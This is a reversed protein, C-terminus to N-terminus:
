ARDITPRRPPPADDDADEAAIELHFRHLFHRIAPATAIGVATIFAVGSFIAYLSAFIKAANSPLPDVPGMGSLIMSANLLADIWGLGAILHYGVVGIALAGVILAAGIGGHRAFRPLLDRMSPLPKHSRRRM